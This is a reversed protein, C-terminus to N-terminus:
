PNASGRGGRHPNLFSGNQEQGMEGWAFESSAFATFSFPEGGFQTVSSASFTGTALADKFQGAFNRPDLPDSSAPRLQRPAGTPTWTMDFSALAPVEIGSLIQFSDVLPVNEMAVRATGTAEDLTLNEDPVRITWFLGSPAISPNYDHAQM